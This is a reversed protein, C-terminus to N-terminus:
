VSQDQLKQPESQMEKSLVFKCNRIAAERGSARLARSAACEPARKRSLVSM